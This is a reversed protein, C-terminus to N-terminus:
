GCLAKKLEEPLREVYRLGQFGKMKPRPKLWHWDRYRVVWDGQNGWERGTVDCGEPLDIQELSFIVGCGTVEGNEVFYLKDGRELQPKFKFVRFWHGGNKEIDEGEKRANEIEAKPTTVVADM